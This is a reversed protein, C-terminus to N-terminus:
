RHLMASPVLGVVPTSVRSLRSHGQIDAATLLLRHPQLTHILTLKPLPNTPQNPLRCTQQKQSPPPFPHQAGAIKHTQSVPQACQTPPTHRGTSYSHPASHLTQLNTLTCLSHHHCDIGVKAQAAGCFFQRAVLLPLQPRLPKPRGQVRPNVRPQM